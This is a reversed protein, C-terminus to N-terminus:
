YRYDIYIGTIYNKLDMLVEEESDRIEGDNISFVYVKKNKNKIQQFIKYHRMLTHRSVVVGDIKDIWNPLTNKNLYHYLISESILTKINLDLAEFVKEESFLEMYVRDYNTIQEKIVEPNNIKDTVLILDKNKDMLKNIQQYGLPNYIKFIKCKLFEDYKPYESISCGTNKSWSEWDHLAILYGDSSLKLDLEIMNMGSALSKTVAELSNTYFLNDIEGGAHAINNKLKIKSVSQKDNTNFVNTFKFKYYHYINLVTKFYKDSLFFKLIKILSQKIISSNDFEKKDITIKSNIINKNLLEIEIDEQLEFIKLCNHNQNSVACIKENNVFLKIRKCKLFLIDNSDKLKSVLNNIHNDNINGNIDTNPFFYNKNKVSYVFPIQIKKKYNTILQDADFLEIFLLEPLSQLKKLSDFYIYVLNEHNNFNTNVNNLLSNGLGIKKIKGDSLIDLITPSIDLTTGKKNIQEFIINDKFNLYYIEFTNKQKERNNILNTDKSMLLHDSHIVLITEKEVHADIFKILKYIEDTVCRFAKELEIKVQSYKVKCKPSAYGDPAHTDFTNIFFSFPNNKKSSTYGRKKIISKAQEFLIEDHYGWSSSNDNIIKRKDIFNKNDVSHNLYLKEQNAFRGDTGQIVFNEYGSKDLIDTLCNQNPYIFQVKQNRKNPILPLSCNLATLGAISWNTGDIEVINNFEKYNKKYKKKKFKKWISSNLSETTIVILNYKNKKNIIFNNNEIKLIKNNNDFSNLNYTLKFIDFTPQSFLIVFIALYVFNKFSIDFDFNRSLKKGLIVLLIAFLLVVIFDSYYATLNSGILNTQFHYYSALNIGDSSVIDILLYFLLYITIITSVIIKKSNKSVFFWLIFIEFFSLM